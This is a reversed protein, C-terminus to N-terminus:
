AWTVLDPALEPLCRLVDVRGLYRALWCRSSRPLRIEVWDPPLVADPIVFLDGPPTCLFWAYPHQRPKKASLTWSWVRRVKRPCDLRGNKITSLKRARAM